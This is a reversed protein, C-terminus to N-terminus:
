KLKQVPREIEKYDNSSHTASPLRVTSCSASSTATSFSSFRCRLDAVVVLLVMVVLLEVVVLLEMVMLLEM